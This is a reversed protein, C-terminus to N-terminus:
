PKAAEQPPQLNVTLLMRTEHLAVVDHEIGPALILLNGAHLDHAKGEATVQLHGDLVQITVVGGARHPPLRTLRGFVFLSVTTTGHKYLTEQRRGAEGANFEQKLKAAVAALGFQHVPAAFRPDPHQRLRQPQPDNM